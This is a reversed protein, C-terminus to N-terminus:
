KLLKFVFRNSFFKYANKSPLFFSSSICHTNKKGNFEECVYYLPLIKIKKSAECYKDRQEIYLLFFNGKTKKFLKYQFYSWNLTSVFFFRRRRRRSQILNKDELPLVV